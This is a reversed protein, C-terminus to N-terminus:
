KGASLAGWWKQRSRMRESKSNKCLCFNRPHRVLRSRLDAPYFKVIQSCCWLLVKESHTKLTQQKSARTYRSLVSSHACILGSCHDNARNRHAPIHSIILHSLSLQMRDHVQRTSLAGARTKSQSVKSVLPSRADEKATACITKMQQHTKGGVAVSKHLKEQWIQTGSFENNPKFNYNFPELAWQWFKLILFIM